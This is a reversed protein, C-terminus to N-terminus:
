QSDCILLQGEDVGIVDLEIVSPVRTRELKKDRVVLEKAVTSTLQELLVFVARLVEVRLLDNVGQGALRHISVGTKDM